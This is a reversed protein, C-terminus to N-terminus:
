LKLPSTVPQHEIQYQKLEKEIDPYLCGKTEFNYLEKFAHFIDGWKGFTLMEADRQSM